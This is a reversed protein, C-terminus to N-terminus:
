DDQTAFLRAEAARRSVLGPLIQGNAYVWRSFQATASTWARQNVCALLTSGELSGTNYEFSVLASFQNSSLEVEVLLAVSQEADAVDEALFEAAQAQTCIQGPHVNCTHGYGITWPQGGTGPDPYARLRLGEFQEILALGAANCKPM